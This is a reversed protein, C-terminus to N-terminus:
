DSPSFTLKKTMTIAVHISIKLVGSTSVSAYFCKDSDQRYLVTGYLVTGYLATGYLVTGYLVFRFLIFNFSFVTWYLVTRFVTGLLLQKLSGALGLITRQEAFM